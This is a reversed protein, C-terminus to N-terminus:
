RFTMCSRGGLEASDELHGHENTSVVSVGNRGVILKTISANIMTRSLRIWQHGDLGWVQAVIQAITGSSSVVLSTRGSGSQRRVTELADTCRCRYDSYSESGIGGGGASSVWEDLACDVLRQLTSGSARAAVGGGGLISDIDYENWREDVTSSVDTPCSAMAIDLTERQRRLSGSVARDFAGVRKRM